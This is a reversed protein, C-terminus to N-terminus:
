AVPLGNPRQVRLFLPVAVSSSRMTFDSAAAATTASATTPSAVAAVPLSVYLNLAFSVAPASTGFGVPTGADAVPDNVAVVTSGLVPLTRMVQFNVNECRDPLPRCACM